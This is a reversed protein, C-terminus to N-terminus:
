RERGMNGDKSDATLLPEFAELCWHLGDCVDSKVGSECRFSCMTACLCAPVNEGGM